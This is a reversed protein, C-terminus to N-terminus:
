PTVKEPKINHCLAQVYNRVTIGAGFLVGVALLIRGVEYAIRVAFYAAVGVLILAVLAGLCGLHGSLLWFLLGRICGRSKSM